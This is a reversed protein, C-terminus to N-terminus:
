FRYQATVGFGQSTATPLITMSSNGQTHYSVVAKGVFYGIAGGFFVTGDALALIAPPTKAQLSLLVPNETHTRHRGQRVCLTKMKYM